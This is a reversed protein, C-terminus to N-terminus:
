KKKNVKRRKNRQTHKERQGYHWGLISAISVGCQFNEPHGQPTLTKSM